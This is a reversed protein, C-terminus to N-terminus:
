CLYNLDKAFECNFRCYVDIENPRYVLIPDSEFKEEMEEKWVKIEDKLDKLGDLIMKKTPLM